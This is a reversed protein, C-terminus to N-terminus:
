VDYPQDKGSSPVFLTLSLSFTKTINTNANSNTEKETKRDGNAHTHTYTHVRYGKDKFLCQGTVIVVTKNCLLQVIFLQSM